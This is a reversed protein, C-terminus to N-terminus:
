QPFREQCVGLLLFIFEPDQGSQPFGQSLNPPELTGRPLAQIPCGEQGERDGWGWCPCGSGLPVRLWPSAGCWVSAHTEFMTM